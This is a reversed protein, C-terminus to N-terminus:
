TYSTVNIDSFELLEKAVSFVSTIPKRPHYITKKVTDERKLLKHPVLQGYKYQIHTLVDAVTGNISNTTRNRIEVM